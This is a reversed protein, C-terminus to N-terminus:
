RVAARLRVGRRHLERALLDGQTADNYLHTSIRLLPGAAFDVIAVEWGDELLARQLAFPTLGTPLAIEIAAMAGTSAGGALHYRHPMGGLGDIVRDRLELAAAHNRAIVNPWGGGLEAVTALATPVALHVCPDHTGAWDLEWPGGTFTEVMRQILTHGVSSDDILVLRPRLGSHTESSGHRSATHRLTRRVTSSSWFQDSGM